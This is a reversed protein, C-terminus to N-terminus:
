ELVVLLEWTHCCSGCGAKGAIFEDSCGGLRPQANIIVVVFANAAPLTILATATDSVLV